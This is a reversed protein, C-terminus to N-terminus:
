DDYKNSRMRHSLNQIGYSLLPFQPDSIHPVKELIVSLTLEATQVQVQTWSGTLGFHM